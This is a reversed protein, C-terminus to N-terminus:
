GADGGSEVGPEHLRGAHRAAGAGVGAWRIRDRFAGQDLQRGGVSFTLSPTSAVVVVVHPYQPTPQRSSAWRASPRITDILGAISPGAFLPWVQTFPRKAWWNARERPRM